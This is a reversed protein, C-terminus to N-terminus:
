LKDIEEITLDTIDSIKDFPM